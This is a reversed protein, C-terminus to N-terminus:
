LIGLEKVEQQNLAYIHKCTETHIHIHIYETHTHMCANTFLVFFSHLHFLSVDLTKRM